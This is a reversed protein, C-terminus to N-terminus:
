SVSTLNLLHDVHYQILGKFLKSFDVDSVQKEFDSWQCQHRIRVSLTNNRREPLTWQLTVDDTTVLSVMVDRVSDVKEVVDVWFILNFM